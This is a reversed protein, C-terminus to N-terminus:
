WQSDHRAVSVEDRRINFLKYKFHIKELVLSNRLDHITSSKATLCDVVTDSIILDITSGYLGLYRFTPWVDKRGNINRHSCKSSDEEHHSRRSV